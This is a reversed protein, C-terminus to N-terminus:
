GVTKGLWDVQFFFQAQCWRGCAWAHCNRRSNGCPIKPKVLSPPGKSDCTPGYFWLHAWLIVPPGMSDCTPGYFVNYIPAFDGSLTLWIFGFWGLFLPWFYMVTQWLKKKTVRSIYLLYLYSWEFLQLKVEVYCSKFKQSGCFISPCIRCTDSTWQFNCGQFILPQFVTISTQNLDNEKAFPNNKPEM